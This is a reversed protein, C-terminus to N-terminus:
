CVCRKRIEVLSRLLQEIMWVEERWITSSGEWSPVSNLTGGRSGGSDSDLGSGSGSGSGSGEEAGKSPIQPSRTWCRAPGSESESEGEGFM